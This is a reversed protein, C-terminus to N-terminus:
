SNSDILNPSITPEDVLRTAVSKRNKWIIVPKLVRAFGKKFFQINYWKPDKIDTDFYGLSFSNTNGREISRCIGEFMPYHSIGHEFLEREYVGTFYTSTKYVDVFISASVLRKELYGLLAEGFGAEIMKYQAEWTEDSRTQRGSIKKHFSKIELFTEKCLEDKNIAVLRINKKGWNIRSKFRDRIKTNFSKSSFGETDVEMEFTLNAHFKQNFLEQGLVSLSSSENFVDKIITNECNSKDAIESIYSLISKIVKKEVKEPLHRVFNIQCAGDPLTFEKDLVSCLVVVLAVGQDLIVFSEESFKERYYERYYNSLMMYSSLDLEKILSKDLENVKIFQM